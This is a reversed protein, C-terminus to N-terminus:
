KEAAALTELVADIMSKRQADVSVRARKDGPQFGYWGFHSHNGGEIWRWSTHRPLLAENARVKAPPALGDRTGLVKPVPVDLAALDVDRPHSPGILVLGAPGLRRDAALTSAVVAGRSHGGLVWRDALPHSQLIGRATTIEVDTTM